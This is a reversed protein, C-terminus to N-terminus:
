ENDESEGDDYAKNNGKTIKDQGIPQKVGMMDNAPVIEKDDDDVFLAHAKGDDIYEQELLEKLELEFNDRSKRDEKVKSHLENFRM